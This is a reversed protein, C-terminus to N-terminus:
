RLRSYMYVFLKGLHMKDAIIFALAFLRVNTREGKPTGIGFLKNKKYKPFREKLWGYLKDYEKSIVKFKAKSTSMGLFMLIYTTFYYELIEYNKEIAGINKLDNYSTNLFKFIEIKSIDKHITNSISSTNIFWNYGVYNIIKIKDTLNYALLNFHIDEAINMNIFKLNNELIFERRYLNSWLATSMYPAWKEDQLKVEFLIKGDQNPRRFGGVVIDYEDANDVYAKIYGEDVWDDADIFVIYEGTAIKLLENRTECVGKNERNVSVINSNESKLKDIVGQTNDTSGDNIVVIEINDYDQNLISKICRELYEECNYAPILVSVKKDM